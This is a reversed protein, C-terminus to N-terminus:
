QTGATVIDRRHFFRVLVASTDPPPSSLRSRFPLSEGPALMGRAPLATWTYVEQGQENRIAFRLRPVEVTKPAKSIITGEIILVSVNDHQARSVKINEFALGRLNVGLGFASYFSATQPLLRVLATRWALLGGAIVALVLLATGVIGLPWRLRVRSAERRSRVAALSEIGEAAAQELAARKLRYYDAADTVVGEPLEPQEPTDPAIPPSKRVKLMGPPAGAEAAMAAAMPDDDGAAEPDDSQGVPLGWEDFEPAAPATSPADPETQETSNREPPAFIEDASAMALEPKRALWTNKCRACRVSRGEAGLAAEPVDYTTACNPCAIQM